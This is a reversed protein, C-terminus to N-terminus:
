LRHLSCAIQTMETMQVCIYQLKCSRDISKPVPWEIEESLGHHLCVHFSLLIDYSTYSGYEVVSREHEHGGKITNAVIAMSIVCDANDKSSDKTEYTILLNRDISPYLYINFIM